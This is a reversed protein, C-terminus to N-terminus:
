AEPTTVPDVEDPWRRKQFSPLALLVFFMIVFIYFSTIWAVDLEVEGSLHELDLIEGDPACLTKFNKRLFDSPLATVSGDLFLANIYFRQKQWPPRTDSFHFPFNKAWADPLAAIKELEEIPLDRPEMWSINSISCDIAVLQQNTKKTIKDVTLPEREPYLTGPGTILIYQTITQSQTAREVSPCIYENICTKGANQNATSNWPEKLNIQNYLPEYDLFPLILTRWSHLPKGNVDITYLPPFRRHQDYYTNFGLMIQKMNNSCQSRRFAERDEVVLQFLIYGIGLLLCVMRLIQCVLRFLKRNTANCRPYILFVLAVPVIIFAWPGFTFVGTAVLVCTLLLDLITFQM